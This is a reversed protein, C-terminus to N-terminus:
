NGVIHAHIELHYAYGTRTKLPESAKCLSSPKWGNHISHKLFTIEALTIYIDGKPQSFCSVFPYKTSFVKNPGKKKFKTDLTSSLLSVHKMLLLLNKIGGSWLDPQVFACELNYFFFRAILSYKCGTLTKRDKNFYNRFIMVRFHHTQCSTCHLAVDQVFNQGKHGRNGTVACCPSQINACLPSAQCIHTQVYHDILFSISLCLGMMTKACFQLSGLHVCLCAYKLYQKHPDQVQIYQSVLIQQQLKFFDKLVRNTQM